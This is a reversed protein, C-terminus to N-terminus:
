GCVLSSKRTESCNAEQNLLGADLLMSLLQREFLTQKASLASASAVLVVDYGLKMQAALHRWSERLCRKLRNREVATGVQRSCTVGFRNVNRRNPRVCILLLPRRWQKGQRFVRAFDRNSKLREFNAM